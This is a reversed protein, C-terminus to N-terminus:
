LQGVKIFKNIHILIIAKYLDKNFPHIKFAEWVKKMAKIYGDRFYYHIIINAKQIAYTMRNDKIYDWHIRIIEESGKIRKDPNNSIRDGEHNYYNVLPKNVVALKYHQSIRLWLEYDQASVMEENFLGCKELAEKRLIVFSTSGVYNRRILEDYVMGTINYSRVQEQIVTNGRLTIINADCYVLGVKKDKFKKVQEVLKQPLWEDDDDLFAIYKGNSNIIGTNRAACAGRNQDHEIYKIKKSALEKIREKIENKNSDYKPSDDVIIIEINEYTQKLVSDIARYLINFPRKYTPIIVTILEKM